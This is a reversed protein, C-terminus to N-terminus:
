SCGFRELDLPISVPARNAYACMALFEAIKQRSILDAFVNLKGPIHSARMLFNHSMAERVVGRLMSAAPEKSTYCKILFLVTPLNDCYVLVRKGTWRKAWLRVAVFIPFLEQCPMSWDNQEQIWTGAFWEGGLLGGYAKGSAADSAFDLDASSTFDREM